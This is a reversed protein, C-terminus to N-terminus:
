KFSTFPSNPDDTVTPSKDPPDERIGGTLGGTSHPAITFKADIEWDFVNRFFSRLSEGNPGAVEFYVIPNSM